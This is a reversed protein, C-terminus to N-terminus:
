FDPPPPETWGPSGEMRALLDRMEGIILGREEADSVSQFHDFLENALRALTQPQQGKKADNAARFDYPADRPPDDRGIAKAIEPYHKNMWNRITGYSRNIPLEDAIERYGKHKIGFFGGKGKIHRGTAIYNKFVNLHEAKSLPVGHNANAISAEWLADAREMPTIEANVHPIALERLATLRHWGDILILMGDVDAVRIPPLAHGFKYAEKYRSIAAKNLNNRVQFGQDLVLQDIQIQQCRPAFTLSNVQNTTKDRVFTTNESGESFAM